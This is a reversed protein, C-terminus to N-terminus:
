PNREAREGAMSSDHPRFLGFVQLLVDHSTLVDLGSTELGDGVGLASLCHSLNAARGGGARVVGARVALAAAAVGLAGADAVAPLWWLKV